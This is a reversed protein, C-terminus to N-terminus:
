GRGRRRKPAAEKAKRKKEAEAAEWERRKGHTRDNEAHIHAFLASLRAAAELDVPDPFAVALAM